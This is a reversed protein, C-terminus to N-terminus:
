QFLDIVDFSEGRFADVGYRISGLSNQVLVDIAPDLSRSYAFRHGCAIVSKNLAEVYSTEVVRYHSHATGAALCARSSMPMLAIVNERNFGWGVRYQGFEDVQMTVVPTDSTVFELGSPAMWIQWPKALLIKSFLEVRRQLQTVFGHRMESETMLNPIVRQFVQLIEHETINRGTLFSYRRALHQRISRDFEIKEKAKALSENWKKRHMHFTADARIFLLAWYEAMRTRQKETWVYCQNEAYRFVEM